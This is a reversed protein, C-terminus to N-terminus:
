LLLSKGMALLFIFISLYLAFISQLDVCTVIVEANTAPFFSNLKTKTWCTIIGNAWTM